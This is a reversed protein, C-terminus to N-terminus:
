KDTRMKLEMNFRDPDGDSEQICENIVNHFKTATAVEDATPSISQGNPMRGKPLFCSDQGDAILADDLEITLKAYHLNDIGNKSGDILEKRIENIPRHGPEASDPTGGNLIKDYVEAQAKKYSANEAKLDDVQKRLEILAQAEKTPDTAVPSPTATVSTKNEEVDPM